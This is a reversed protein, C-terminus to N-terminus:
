DQTTGHTVAGRTTAVIAARAGIGKSWKRAETVRASSIVVERAAVMAPVDLCNRELMENSRGPFM